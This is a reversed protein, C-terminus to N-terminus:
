CVQCMHNICDDPNLTCNQGAYGKPCACSYHSGHDVCTGGNACPAFEATCFPIKKECFEGEFRFMDDTRPSVSERPTQRLAFCCGGSTEVNHRDLWQPEM